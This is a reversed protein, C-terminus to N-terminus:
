RHAATLSKYAELDGRQKATRRQEIIDLTEPRIWPKKARALDGIVEKASDALFMHWNKM